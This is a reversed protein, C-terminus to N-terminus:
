LGRTRVVDFLYSFKALIAGNASRGFTDKKSNHYIDSLGFVYRGELLFRHGSKTSVELGLGGTLGYEFPKEVPMDYQQIIGNPRLSLNWDTWDGGRKENESICYAMYPGLVLFGKVGGREKGFGMSMLLPVQIYNMTRSYTDTSTEILETWGMQTYNVEAQIGCLAAFYKECIYRATFGMSTGGHYSQKITPDFSIKNLAYGGSLGVSFDRRSEGVQAKAKRSSGLALLIILFLSYRRIHM